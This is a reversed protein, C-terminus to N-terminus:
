NISQIILLGITSQCREAEPGHSATCVNNNHLWLTHPTFTRNPQPQWQRRWSHNIMYFSAVVISCKMRVDSINAAVIITLVIM